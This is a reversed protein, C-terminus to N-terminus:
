SRIIPCLRRATIRGSWTGGAYWTARVRQDPDLSAQAQVAESYSDLTVLRHLAAEAQAPDEAELTAAIGGERLAAVAAGWREPDIRVGRRQM